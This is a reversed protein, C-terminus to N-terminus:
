SSCTYTQSEEQTPLRLKISGDISVEALVGKNKYNTAYVIMEGNPAVSPSEDLNKDRTLVRIRGNDLNQVAINFLDDDRHLMVISKGNPTFSARANYNGEYTLREVKKSQLSMEYIQPGGGRNSTFIISKGDPSWAPETDLSEGHTIQHLRHSKLDLIYIKPFGTKTLVLALKSGSPSWAPAGNIGPFASVIKRQGSRINQIYISAKNNEFSVYAIRDGDPSWAPSMIPAGSVLIANPNFGDEDAVILSYKTPKNKFRQVLVYAIKTSFVGRKGTLKEYILDSIHHALFRFNKKNITFKEDLLINEGYVDLLKFTVVYKHSSNIQVSGTVVNDVNISKWYDYGKQSVNSNDIVRFSGCNKLDSNIVDSVNSGYVGMFNVIYIPLAKDVGQTLELQLEGFSISTFCFIFVIFIRILFM